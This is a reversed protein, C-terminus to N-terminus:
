LFTVLSEYSAEDPRARGPAAPPMARVRLKRVTKEWEVAHEGVKDIDMADLALGGTKLKQNHCSICYRNIVAQQQSATAPAAAPSASAPQQARLAVVCIGVFVAATWGVFGTVSRHGM